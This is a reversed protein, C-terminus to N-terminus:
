RTGYAEVGLKEVEDFNLTPPLDCEIDLVAEVIPPNPLKFPDLIATESM